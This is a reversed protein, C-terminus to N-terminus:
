WLAGDTHIDWKGLVVGYTYSDAVPSESCRLTSDEGVPPVPHGQATSHNNQPDFRPHDVVAGFLASPIVLEM